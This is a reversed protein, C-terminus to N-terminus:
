ASGRCNASRSRLAAGSGSPTNKPLALSGGLRSTIIRGCKHWSARRRRAIEAIGHPLGPGGAGRAAWRSSRGGMRHPSEPASNGSLSEIADM